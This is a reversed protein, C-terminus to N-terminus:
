GERIFIFDIVVKNVKVFLLEVVPCLKYCLEFVIRVSWIEVNEYWCTVSYFIFIQKILQYLIFLITQYRTLSTNTLRNNNTIEKTHCLKILISISSHVERRLSISFIHKINEKILIFKSFLSSSLNTGQTSFFHDEKNIIDVHRSKLLIPSLWRIFEQSLNNILTSEIVKFFEQKHFNRITYEYCCTSWWASSSIM